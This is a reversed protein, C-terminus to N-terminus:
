YREDSMGKRTAETLTTLAPAYRIPPQRHIGASRGRGALSLALRAFSGMDLPRGVHLVDCEPSIERSSPSHRNAIYAALKSKDITPIM